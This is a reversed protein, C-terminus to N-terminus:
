KGDIEWCLTEHDSGIYLDTAIEAMSLQANNSAIVLDITNSRNNNGGKWTPTGSEIMLRELEILEKVEHWSGAPEGRNGNWLSHHSNFNGACVRNKHKNGQLEDVMSKIDMTTDRHYYINIRLQGIEIGVKDANRSGGYHNWEIYKRIATHVYPRDDGNITQAHITKACIV